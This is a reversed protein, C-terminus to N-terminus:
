AVSAVSMRRDIAIEATQLLALNETPSPIWVLLDIIQTLRRVAAGHHQQRLRSFSSVVSGIQNMAPSCTERKAPTAFAGARRTSPTLASQHNILFMPPTTDKGSM